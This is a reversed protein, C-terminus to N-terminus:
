WGACLHALRMRPPFVFPHRVRDTDVTGDLLPRIGLLAIVVGAVATSEDDVGERCERAEAHFKPM